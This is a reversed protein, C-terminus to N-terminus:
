IPEVFLLGLCVRLWHFLIGHKVSWWEQPAADMISYTISIKLSSCKDKPRTLSGMMCGIGSGASRRPLGHWHLKMLTVLFRKGLETQPDVFEMMFINQSRNSKKKYVHRHRHPNTHVIYMYSGMCTLFPVSPGRSNSNISMVRSLLHTRSILGQDELLATVGSGERM